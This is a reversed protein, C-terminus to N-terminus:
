ELNKLTDSVVYDYTGPRGPCTGLINFGIIRLYKAASELAPKVAGPENAFPIKISNDWYDSTIKVMPTKGTTASIRLIHLTPITPITYFDAENYILTVGDKHTLGTCHGNQEYEVMYQGISDKVVKYGSNKWYVTTGNDVATKIEQLTM